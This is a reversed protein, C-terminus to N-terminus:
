GSASSLLKIALDGAASSVLYTGVICGGKGGFM